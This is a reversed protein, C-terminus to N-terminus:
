DERLPRSISLYGILDRVQADSLKQLMGDPMLSLDSLKRTDIENVPVVVRDNITQVTVANENEEVVLGTIIRGGDTVIIQMQYDKSVATSPAIINELIYDLNTRQSGTIDPGVDKGEGFLKHCNACNKQFVDRGAALDAQRLVELKLKKKYDAILKKKDGPTSHVEGWVDRLKKTIDERGLNQLQRVTFATLDTRPIRDAEIARLLSMAWTPRSALTQLAHQRSTADFSKYTSVINAVTEPHNFTALGQLAAGCTVKDDLSELLIAPLKADKKASLLHIARQRTVAELRTDLVQVRLSQLAKPDDFVLAVELAKDRLTDKRSARLKLYSANWSKPMSVSRRGEFGRMLGNLVDMRLEDNDSRALLQVLTDLPDTPDPLSAVRRAIHQRVLPIKSQFALSAFRNADKTILPEVAYWYLLPLNQDGTDEGHAVLTAAIPWRQDLPIRQLASALQRRVHPSEDHEAISAFRELTSKSPPKRDCLLRIAWARIYESNDALMSTLLKENLGNTVYLAWMARLRQPVAFSELIDRLNRNVESMDDGAATREQLIRRAHRVFWDNRHLQLRVLEANSLSQLDPLVPKPKGYTIKFIRGTQRRTNRTSHCEGTDSWDSAFVGGDPGYALTVGMYWKDKSRMVDAGHSATYGSGSRKLIDNNIRHGHINNMLVTNRYRDPWNDGLYVMTGCHAHGGGLKDEEASGIGNRVNGGGVFHRHDAISDIRQYAFQSSKRNRWPEYHAGEIVHFLHPNVCNCVFGEGYDDFDIGWPNTTGDAFPEWVHRVPHYRYVGGDFRVRKEGPTGPKGIMSWNTRGHTGYLWGDPGWAFGNALNHANAHLGFGDLLVQPKGDPKDDGNRDPIFYFNPPSM